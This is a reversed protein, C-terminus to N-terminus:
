TEAKDRGVVVLGEEGEITWSAGELEGGDVLKGSTVKGKGM